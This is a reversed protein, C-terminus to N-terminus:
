KIVHADMVTNVYELVYISVNGLILHPTIDSISGRVRNMVGREVSIVNSERHRM